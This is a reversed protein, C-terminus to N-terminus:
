RVIVCDKLRIDIISGDYKGQVTVTQGRTLKSLEPEHKKEFVCRISQLLRKDASALVIYHVDLVENIEIRAVVGTVNLIKDTFKADAAVGDAEYASILEEITVEIAAPAPEPMSEPEEVPKVEPEAEAKLEPEEVPKAESEPMSKLEEIPRPEPELGAIPKPEPELEAIPKPEPEPMSEPEEIPKPEPELEAMHVPPLSEEAEETAPPKHLKEEQLQKYTKPIKKYSGSLLPYGCWQCAWDETRATGQGCNPCQSM